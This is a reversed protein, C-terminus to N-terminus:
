GAPGTAWRTSTSASYSRCRGAIRTPLKVTAIPGQDIHEADLIVLDSRGNEAAYSAVGMLYGSGEPAKASKPAFCGPSRRARMAASSRASYAISCSSVIAASEAPADVFAEAASLYRDVANVVADIQTFDLDTLELQELLVNVEVAGGFESSDPPDPLRWFRLGDPADGVEFSSPEIVGGVRAPQGGVQHFNDM